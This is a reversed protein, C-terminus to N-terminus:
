MNDLMKEGIQRKGKFINEMDLAYLRPLLFFFKTLVVEGPSRSANILEVAFYVLYPSVVEGFNGLFHGM